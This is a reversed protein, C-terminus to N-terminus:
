KERKEGAKKTEKPIETNEEREVERLLGHEGGFMKTPNAISAFTKWRFIKPPPLQAGIQEYISIVFHPVDSPIELLAAGEDTVCIFDEQSDPKFMLMPLKNVSVADDVCQQWWETFKAKRPDRLLAVFSFAKQNKAEVSFCFGERDCITDGSFVHEAVKTGGFKNFAGSSPIRRFSEGTFEALLSACRREYRNGKRKSKIGM